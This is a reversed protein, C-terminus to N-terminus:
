QAGVWFPCEIESRGAVLSRTSLFGINSATFKEGEDVIVNKAPPLASVFGETLVAVISVRM